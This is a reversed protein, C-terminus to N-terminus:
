SFEFVEGGDPFRIERTGDGREIIIAGNEEKKKEETEKAKVIEKKETNKELKQDANIIEKTGNPYHKEITGNQLKYVHLGDPYTTQTTKADYFYYVSKQNPFIQKIDKNTFFIIQYGDKFIQKRVGSSFIIEKANNQYTKIIKGDSLKEESIIKTNSNIEYQPPLILDYNDKEEKIVKNPTTFFNMKNQSKHPQFIESKTFPRNFPQFENHQNLSVNENATLQHHQKFNTPKKVSNTIKKQNNRSIRMLENIQHNADNLQKKLKDINQKNINEKKKIEQQTRTLQNRLQEIIEKDNKKNNKNNNNILIPDGNFHNPSKYSQLNTKRIKKIEEEKWKEFNSFEKQKLQSFEAMEKNLQKKMKVYETKIKAVENKEEQLIKLEKDFINKLGLNKNNKTNKMNKEFNKTEKDIQITPINNKINIEEEEEEGSYNYIVEDNDGDNENDNDLTIVIPQNEDRNVLSNNKEEEEKGYGLQKNLNENMSRNIIVSENENITEFSEEHVSEEKKKQKLIEVSRCTNIDKHISNSTVTNLNNPKKSKKSYKKTKLPNDNKNLKVSKSLQKPNKKKYKFKPRNSFDRDKNEPIYKLEALNNEVLEVFNIKTGKIPIDDYNVAKNEEEFICEKTPNEEIKEQNNNTNLHEINEIQIVSKEENSDDEKKNILNPSTNSIICNMFKQFLLFNEYMQAGNNESININKEKLFNEFDKKTIKDENSEENQNEKNDM